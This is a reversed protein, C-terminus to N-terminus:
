EDPERERFLAATGGVRGVLDANVRECLRGIEQDRADRAQGRFRVKILEHDDLAREVEAVVADSVGGQGVIVVPKIHHARARLRRKQNSNLM